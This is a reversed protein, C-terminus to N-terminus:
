NIVMGSSLNLVSGTIAAARDSALFTAADAINAITPLRKSLMRDAMRAEFQSRTIGYADAHLGYVETLQATEPMGAANVCVVRVGLPGVEAALGRTLSEIAAWAPAMGGMLPVASRSPSATITLIVGTGRATM